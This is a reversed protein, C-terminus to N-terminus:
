INLILGFTLNLIRDNDRFYKNNDGYLIPQERRLNYFRYLCNLEFTLRKTITVDVGFGANSAIGYFQFQKETITERGHFHCKINILQKGIINVIIKPRVSRDTKFPYIVFGLPYELLHYDQQVSMVYIENCWKGPPLHLCQNFGEFTSFTRKIYGIGLNIGFRDNFHYSGTITLGHNLNTRDTTEYDYINENYYVSVYRYSERYYQVGFHIKSNQAYSLLNILSLISCFIIQKNKM